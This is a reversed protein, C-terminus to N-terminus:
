VAIACRKWDKLYRLTELRELLAANGIEGIASRRLYSRTKLLDWLCSSIQEIVNILEPYEEFFYFSHEDSALKRMHKVAQLRIWESEQDSFPRREGSYLSFIHVPDSRLDSSGSKLANAISLDAM